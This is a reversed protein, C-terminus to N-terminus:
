APAETRVMAVNGRGREGFGAHPNGAGPEGTPDHVECVSWWFPDHSPPAPQDPLGLGSCSLWGAEVDNGTHRRAQERGPPTSGNPNLGKAEAHSM